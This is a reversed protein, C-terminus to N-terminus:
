ILHKVKEIMDKFTELFLDRTQASGFALISQLQYNTRTRIEDNFVMICYKAVNDDTFDPVFGDVANWADRLDILQALICMDRLLKKSSTHNPTQTTSPRVEEITGMSSMYYPRNIDTISEPYKIEPKLTIIGTTTDLKDIKYGKPIGIKITAKNM